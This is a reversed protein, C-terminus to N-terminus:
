SSTLVQTYVDCAIKVVDLTQASLGEAESSNELVIIMKNQNDLKQQNKTQERTITSLGFSM